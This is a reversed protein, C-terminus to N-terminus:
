EGMLVVKMAAKQRLLELGENAEELALAHTVLADLPYRRSNALTLAQHLHRLNSTWVGQLTVQKRSLLYPDIRPDRVPVAVGPITVTGGPAVLHLAEEVAASSGACDVVVAAGQGQSLGAVLEVRDEPSTEAMSVPICGFSESLQLRAPSSGTGIMVVQDAGQSFAFAAAFLGLPGPGIVVVVDAPRINSLEIAHAATAGSCTAAVLGIPEAEPPLKIVATEPRLYIMEAYCGNLHPWDASSLSIGYTRRRECLEPRGHLVCQACKGCTLGRDFAIMDGQQVPRGFLDQKEGGVAVIEGIGEHGLIMPLAVRPDKGSTIDLDSGCIGAALVRMLVAGPEVTPVPFERLVLPQGVQELVMAKVTQEAM